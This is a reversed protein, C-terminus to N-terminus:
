SYDYTEYDMSPYMYAIFVFTSTLSFFCFFFRDLLMAILRWETQCAQAMALEDFHKELTGQLKHTKEKLDFILKQLENM